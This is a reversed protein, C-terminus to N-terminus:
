SLPSRVKNGGLGNIPNLFCTISVPWDNTIFVSISFCMRSSPLTTIIPSADLDTTKTGMNALPSTVPTILKCFISWSFANEVESTLNSVVNPLLMLTAKSLALSKSSVLRRNFSVSFRVASNDTILLTCSPSAFSGSIFPM